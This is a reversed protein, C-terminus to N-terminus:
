LTTSQKKEFYDSAEPKIICIVGGRDLCRSKSLYDVDTFCYADSLQVVVDIMNHREVRYVYHDDTADSDIRHLNKVCSHEQLVMEFFPVILRHLDRGM